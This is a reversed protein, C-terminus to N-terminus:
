DRILDLKMGNLVDQIENDSLKTYSFDEDNAHDVKHYKVADIAAYIGGYDIDKKDWYHELLVKEVDLDFDLIYRASDFCDEVIQPFHYNNVKDEKALTIYDEISDKVLNLLDVVFENNVNAWANM